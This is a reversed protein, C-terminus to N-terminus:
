ANDNKAEKYKNKIELIEPLNKLFANVQEPAFEIGSKEIIYDVANQITWAVKYTRTSTLADFVDAIAVIRGAIPINEGILGNPYGSGNWKEHHTLAIQRAYQLLSSQHSGIIKAGITTHTKIIKWEEENLKGPKQLISDPIGIKGIDHMPSAHFILDVETEPLNSARAIIKSFYSMRIVHSGTDYDRYEVAASLRRIIDLRTDNLERTRERVENELTANYENLQKHVLRVELLNITRALVEQHNFPKTIFDKAGNKLSKLRLEDDNLATVVLVPIEIKKNVEKFKKMVELGNIGPMSLDLLVIDFDNNAYLRVGEHPDTTSVIDLFGDEALIEQLIELNVPEDDILLIKAKKHAVHIM